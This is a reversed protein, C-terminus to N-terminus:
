QSQLCGMESIMQCALPIWSLIVASLEQCCQSEISFNWTCGTKQSPQLDKAEGAVDQLYGQLQHVGTLAHQAVTCPSWACRRTSKLLGGMDGLLSDRDEDLLEIELGACSDPQFLEVTTLFDRGLIVVGAM